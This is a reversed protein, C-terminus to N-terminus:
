RKCITENVQLPAISILGNRWCCCCGERAPQSAPENPILHHYTFWMWRERWRAGYYINIASLACSPTIFALTTFRDGASLSPRLLLHVSASLIFQRYFPTLLLNCVAYRNCPPPPAVPVSSPIWECDILSWLSSCPLFWGGAYHSTM